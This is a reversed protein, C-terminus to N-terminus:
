TGQVTCVNENRDRRKNGWIDRSHKESKVKNGLALKETREEVDTKCRGFKEASM